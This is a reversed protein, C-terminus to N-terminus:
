FLGELRWLVILGVLAALLVKFGPSAYVREWRTEPM